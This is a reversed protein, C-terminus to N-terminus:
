VSVLLMMRVITILSFIVVATVFLYLTRRGAQLRVYVLRFLELSVVFYM